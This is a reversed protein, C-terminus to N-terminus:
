VSYTSRAGSFDIHGSAVGEGKATADAAKGLVSTAGPTPTATSGSDSNCAALALTAALAAATLARRGRPAVTLVAVTERLRRGIPVRAGYVRRDRSSARITRLHTTVATTATSASPSVPQSLPPPLVAAGTLSVRLSQVGLPRAVALAVVAAIAWASGPCHASADTLSKECSGFAISTTCLVTSGVACIVHVTFSSTTSNVTNSLVRSRSRKTSSREVPRHLSARAWAFFYLDRTVRGAKRHSTPLPLTVRWGSLWPSARWNLRM